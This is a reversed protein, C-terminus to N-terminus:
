KTKKPAPEAPFSDQFGQGIGKDDTRSVKRTRLSDCADTLTFSVNQTERLNEQM